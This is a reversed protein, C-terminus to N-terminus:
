RERRRRNMLRKRAVAAWWRWGARLKDPDQERGWIWLDVLADEIEQKTARQARLSHAVQRAYPLGLDLAQAVRGTREIEAEAATQGWSRM